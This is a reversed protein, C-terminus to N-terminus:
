PRGAQGTGNRQYKGGNKRKLGFIANIIDRFEDPTETTEKTYTEGKANVRINKVKPFLADYENNIAKMTEVDGGRDPHHKLALDRYAKKLEELTKINKFFGM